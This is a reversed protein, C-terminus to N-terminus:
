NGKFTAMQLTENNAAAQTPAYTVSATSAAIHYAFNVFIHSAATNFNALVNNFNASPTIASGGGCLMAMVIENAQGLTGTSGSPTTTATGPGVATVDLPAAILGPIRAAAITLGISNLSNFTATITNGSALPAANPFYWLYGRYNTSSNLQTVADTYVLNTTDAVATVTPAPTSFTTCIGVVITDGSVINQTTTISLTLGGGDSINSGLSVPTGITPKKASSFFPNSLGPLQANAVTLGLLLILGSLLKRM